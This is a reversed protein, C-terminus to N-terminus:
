LTQTCGALALAFFAIAMEQSRPEARAAVPLDADLAQAVSAIAACFFVAAAYIRNRPKQAFPSHVM